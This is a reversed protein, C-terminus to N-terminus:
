RRNGLVAKARNLYEIRDDLGNYGGDIARTVAKADDRDAFRSIRRKVWYWCAVDAAIM